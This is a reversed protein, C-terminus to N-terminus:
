NIYLIIADTKIKDCSQFWQSMIIAQKVILTDKKVPLLTRLTMERLYSYELCLIHIPVFYSLKM